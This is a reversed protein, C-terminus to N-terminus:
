KKFLENRSKRNDPGDKFKTDSLQGTQRNRDGHVETKTGDPHARSGTLKDHSGNEGYRSRDGMKDSINSGGGGAFDGLIEQGALDEALDVSDSTPRGNKGRNSNDASENYANLTESGAYGAAAATAVFFAAKGLAVVEPVFLLVIAFEGTPDAMNIQRRGWFYFWSM